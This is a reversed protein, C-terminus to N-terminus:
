SNVKLINISVPCGLLDKPFKIEKSSDVHPIVFIGKCEDILRVIKINGCAGPEYPIWSYVIIRPQEEEPEAAVMVDYVGLNMQGTKIDVNKM